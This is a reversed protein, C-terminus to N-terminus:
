PAVARYQARMTALAEDREATTLKREVKREVFGTNNASKPKGQTYAGTLYGHAREVANGSTVYTRGNTEKLWAMWQRFAECCKGVDPGLNDAFENSLHRGVWAKVKGDNTLTAEKGFEATALDYFPQWKPVTPVPVPDANGNNTDTDTLPSVIGQISNGKLRSRPKGDSPKGTERTKGSETSDGERHLEPADAISYYTSVIRGRGDREYTLKAFGAARLEGMIRQMRDRGGARFKTLQSVMVEWDDPRTLLYFLVGAAEWSLSPDLAGANNVTTYGHTRRARKIRQESM